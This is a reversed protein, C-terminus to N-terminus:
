KIQNTLSYIPTIIAFVIFGVGLGLVVMIIPEIATTLNKVLYESEKEFYNSLKTMTEDLKGTEEGVRIMQSVIVPFIEYQAFSEGMPFGKEIKQSIETLANRFLVNGMSERLFALGDLIHIGATILMGLTRSFEALLVKKQLEGIIPIKLMVTDLTLEGLKTKRWRSFGFIAGFIGLIMVWWFQVFFNSVDVLLQTVFPLSVGFDKYMETLKPIVVTMMLFVVAIMGIIIIIPYIMASKVKARFDREKELTEALRTLVRDLTGSGEGAKILAIYVVPFTEPHRQLASALTGGSVIHHEIDLLVNSFSPNDIQSRLISLSDPLSLGAVSLTAMQRTFNVTDSFTVRKLKKTITELSFTQNKLSLSVIYLKKDRLLRAAVDQSPAEVLGTTTTGSADKAKYAYMGM